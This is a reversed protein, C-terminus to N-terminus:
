KHKHALIRICSKDDSQEASAEEEECERSKARKKKNVFIDRENKKTKHTYTERV